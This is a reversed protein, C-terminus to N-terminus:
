IPAADLGFATINYCPHYVIPIMELSVISSRRTFSRAIARSFRGPVRASIPSASPRAPTLTSPPPVQTTPPSPM